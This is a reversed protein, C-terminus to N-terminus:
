SSHTQSCTIIYTKCWYTLPSLAGPFLSVHLYLNTVHNSYHDCLITHNHYHHFKCDTNSPVRSTKLVNLFDQIVRSSFLFFSGIGLAVVMAMPLVPVIAVVVIVKGIGIGISIGISLTCLHFFAFSCCWPNWLRHSCNMSMSFYIMSCPSVFSAFFSRM